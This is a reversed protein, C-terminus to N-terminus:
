NVRSHRDAWQFASVFYQEPFLAYFAFGEPVKVTVKSDGLSSLTGLKSILERVKGACDDVPDTIADTATAWSNYFIGAAESTIERALRIQDQQNPFPQGSYDEIAQELQGTQILLARTEELAGSSAKIAQSRLSAIISCLREEYQLDGYVLM